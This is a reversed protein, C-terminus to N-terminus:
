YAAIVLGSLDSLHVAEVVFTQSLVAVGVHPLVERIQEVVQRQRSQDVALDKAEMPTEAGGDIGEVVDPSEIAELFHGVLPWHAIEEPGVGVIAASPTDRGPITASDISM